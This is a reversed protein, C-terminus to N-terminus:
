KGYKVPFRFPAASHPPAITSTPAPVACHSLKKLEHGCRANPLKQIAMGHAEEATKTGFAEDTSTNAWKRNARTKGANALFAALSCAVSRWGCCSQRSPPFHPQRTSLRARDGRAALRVLGGSRLSGPGDSHGTAGALRVRHGLKPGPAPDVGWGPIEAMVPGATLCRWHL